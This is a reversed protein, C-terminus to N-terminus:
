LRPNELEFSNWINPLDAVGLNPDLDNDSPDNEPLEVGLDYGGLSLDVEGAMPDRAETGCDIALSAPNDGQLEASTPTSSNYQPETDLNPDISMSPQQASLSNDADIVSRPADYAQSTAPAAEDQEKLWDLLDNLDGQSLPEEFCPAPLPLADTSSGNNNNTLAFHGSGFHQNPQPPEPYQCTHGSQDAYPSTTPPSNQTATTRTIYESAPSEAPLFLNEPANRAKAIDQYPDSALAQTSHWSQTEPDWDLDSPLPFDTVPAYGNATPDNEVTTSTPTQSNDSEGPGINGMNHSGPPNKNKAGLPRGRKKPEKPLGHDPRKPKNKAGPPRGKPKGTYGRGRKKPKEAPIPPNGTIPNQALPVSPAPSPLGPAIITAPYFAPLPLQPQHTPYSTAYGNNVDRPSVTQRQDLYSPREQGFNQASSNQAGSTLDM